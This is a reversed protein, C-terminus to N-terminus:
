LYGRKARKTIKGTADCIEVPRILAGRHKAQFARAAKKATFVVARYSKLGPTELSVEFMMRCAM